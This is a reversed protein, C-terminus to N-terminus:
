FLPFHPIWTLFLSPKFCNMWESMCENWMVSHRSHAQFQLSLLFCFMEARLYRMISHSVLYTTIICPPGWTEDWGTFSPTPHTHETVRNHGLRQLGMSSLHSSEEQGHFKEPLFLTTPQWKQIGRSRGLVPVLSCRKHRRSQCASEKGSAAGPFGGFPPAM